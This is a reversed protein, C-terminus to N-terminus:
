SQSTRLTNILQLHRTSFYKITLHYSKKPNAKLNNGWFFLSPPKTTTLPFKKPLINTNISIEMIFLKFISTNLHLHKRKLVQFTWQSTCILFGRARLSGTDLHHSILFGRHRSKFIKSILRSWLYVVLGLLFVKLPVTNLM